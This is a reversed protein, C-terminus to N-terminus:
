SDVAINDCTHFSLCFFFLFIFSLNEHHYCFKSEICYRYMWTTLGFDEPSQFELWTEAM